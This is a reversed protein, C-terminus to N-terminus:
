VMLDRSEHLWVQANPRSKHYEDVKSAITRLDSLAISENGSMVRKNARNLYSNLASRLEEIANVYQDKADIIKPVSTAYHDLIGKHTVNLTNYLRFIEVLQYDKLQNISALFYDEQNIKNAIADISHAPYVALDSILFPNNIHNQFIKRGTSDFSNIANFSDDILFQLYKMKNQENIIQIERDKKRTLRDSIYFGIFSVFAGIFAAKLTVDLHSWYGMFDEYLRYLASHIKHLM